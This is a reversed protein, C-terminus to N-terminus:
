DKEKAPARRRAVFAGVLGNERATLAGWGGALLKQMLGLEQAARYKLREQPTIEPINKM